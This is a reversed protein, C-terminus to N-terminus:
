VLHFSIPHNFAVFILRQLHSRQLATASEASLAVQADSYPATVIPSKSNEEENKTMECIDVNLHLNMNTSFNRNRLAMVVSSFISQKQAIATVFTEACFM